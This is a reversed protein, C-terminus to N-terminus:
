ETFVNNKTPIEDKIAKTQVVKQSKIKNQRKKGFLPESLVADIWKERLLTYEENSILGSIHIERLKQLQDSLEFIGDTFLREAMTPKPEELVVIPQKEPSQLNKNSANTESSQTLVPTKAVPEEDLIPVIWETNDKKNQEDEKESNDKEEELQQEFNEIQENQKLTKRIKSLQGIKVFMLVMSAISLGLVVFYATAVIWLYNASIGSRYVVVIAFVSFAICVIYGIISWVIVSKKAQKSYDQYKVNPMKAIFRIQKYLPLQKIFIIIMGIGLGLMVISILILGVMTGGGTGYTSSPYTYLSTTNIGSIASRNLFRFGISIYLSYIGCGILAVSLVLTCLILFITVGQKANPKTTKAKKTEM